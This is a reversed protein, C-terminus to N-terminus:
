FDSTLLLAAREPGRDHAATLDIAARKRQVRRADRKSPPEILERVFLMDSLFPWFAALSNSRPILLNFGANTPM